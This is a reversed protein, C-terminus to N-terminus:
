VLSEALFLAVDLAVIVTSLKLAVVVAQNERCRKTSQLVLCLYERQRAAYKYMVTQRVRELHGAYTHRQTVIDGLPQDVGGVWFQLTREDFM